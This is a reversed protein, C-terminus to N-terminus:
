KKTSQFNRTLLEAYRAAIPFIVIETSKNKMADLLLNEYFGILKEKIIGAATKKKEDKSEKLYDRMYYSFRWVRNLEIKGKMANKQLKEFGRTSKRIKELIARSIEYNEILDILINKLEIVKKLESWEIVCDFISVSNKNKSKSKAEHLRSEAIAAFKSVPYNEDIVLLSASLTISENNCVFERFKTNIFDAFEFVIEWAGIAFFDDGGSYIVYIKDKFKEQNLVNSMYTEFFWKISRSLAAIRSISRNESLGESFIRGLNDVDMKIIGMKQTGTEILSDISYAKFTKTTGEIDDESLEKLAEKYDKQILLNKIEELKNNKWVPVKVISYKFGGYNESFDTSNLVICQKSIEDPKKAYIDVRYGLKYFPNQYEDAKLPFDTDKQFIAYSTIKTLEDAFNEYKDSDDITQRKPEFVDSFNLDKFKRKKNLDSQKKSESFINNFSGFDDFKVDVTGIAFYLDLDKVSDQIEKYIQNIQNEKCKPALIYMNGGGNYLINAQRLDLKDIIFRAIVESFIQIFYSRAKLKKAAKKSTINFIFNQIGSFDGNILVCPIDSDNFTGNLIEKDKKQLCGRNYEDWLCLSIAATVRSHDYLNIDPQYLFDENGISFPTQAPVNTLYKEMLFLMSDIDEINDIEKIFKNVLVPYENEQCSDKTVPFLFEEKPSIDTLNVYKRDPSKKNDLKIDCFPSQLRALHYKVGSLEKNEIRESAALHDAKRILNLKISNIDSYESSASDKHHYLVLTEVSDNVFKKNKLILYKIFAASFRRHAYNRSVEEATVYKEAINKWEQLKGREIFKGIDHLLASVYITEKDDM